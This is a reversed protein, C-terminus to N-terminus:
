SAQEQAWRASIEEHLCEDCYGEDCNDWTFCAGVPNGENDTATGDSLADEGFRKIAHDGCHEAADYTFHRISSFM